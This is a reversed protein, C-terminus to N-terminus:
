ILAKKNEYESQSLEKYGMAKLNKLTEGSLLGDIECLIKKTNVVKEEYEEVESVKKKRARELELNLEDPSSPFIVLDKDGRIVKHEINIDSYRYCYETAEIISKEGDNHVNKVVGYYTRDDYSEDFRKYVDGVQVQTIRIVNASAQIASKTMM